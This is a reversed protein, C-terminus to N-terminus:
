KRLQVEYIVPIGAPSTPKINMVRHVKSDIPVTDGNVPAVIVNELIFRIDGSQVITGDVESNNYDLAVGFGVILSTTPGVDEGLIPDFSGPTTHTFTVEQGKDKLIRSATAQLGSYFSM